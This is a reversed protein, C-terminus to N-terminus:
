YANCYANCLSQENLKFVVICLVWGCVFIMAKSQLLLKWAAGVAPQGKGEEQCFSSFALKVRDATQLPAVSGCCQYAATVVECCAMERERGTKSYAPWSWCLVVMMLANQSIVRKLQVTGAAQAFHRRTLEAASCLSHVFLCAFLHPYLCVGMSAWKSRPVHYSAFLLSVQLCLFQYTSM